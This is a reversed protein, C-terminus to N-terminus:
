YINQQIRGQSSEIESSLIPQAFRRSNKPLTYTVPAENGRISSSTYPYFKRSLEVDDNPDENNNLRRIDFWRMTFPMERRREELIQRIAEEKSTASLNIIEAGANADMRKARLINVTNMAEIFNGQRAQCEAKILIMEAVTPGSPLCDDYFFVWGPYEYAPKTLGKAYSYNTVMHYRYRLDHQSDYLAILERSPVYWWSSNYLLRYWYFEKWELRDTVDERDDHTYPFLVEVVEEESTGSNITYTTKQNSYRMETNYDVLENHLELAADAYSEAQEYDNRFLWYRATFALVAPRSARWIKYKGNVMTLEATMQLAVSLDSEIQEYTKELTAREMSEEFSTTQKLVLGPENRNAETYPLCYTNALEWLSYAKIFHSEMRLREKTEANGSVSSLNDLVMNATFIKKYENSWFPDSSQNAVNEIDWTAFQVMQINYTANRHDYLETYLGYDDSSFIASQNAEESFTSYNNLMYELHDTTEPVISSTKSPKEELFDNCGMCAIAILTTIYRNRNM